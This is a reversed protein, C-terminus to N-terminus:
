EPRAVGLACLRDRQSGYCIELSIAGADNRFDILEVRGLHIGAAIRGLDGAHRGRVFVVTGDAFQLGCVSRIAEARLGRVPVRRRLLRTLNASLVAPSTLGYEAAVLRGITALEDIDAAALNLGASAPTASEGARAFWGRIPGLGFM